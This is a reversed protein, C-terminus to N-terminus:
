SPTISLELHNGGPDTIYVSYGPGEGQRRISEVKIGRSELEKTMTEPDAPGECNFTHHPIGPRLGAAADFLGIGHAGVRLRAVAGGGITQRGSEEAGLGERYFTVMEELNNANLNWSRMGTIRFM